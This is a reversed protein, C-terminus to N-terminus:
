PKADDLRKLDAAVALLAGVAGEIKQVLPSFCGAAAITRRAPSPPPRGPAEDVHISEFLAITEPMPRCGLDRALKSELERYQMIATARDSMRLQCGILKRHVHELLPEIRLIRRAFHIAEEWAAEVMAGDLRHEMAFVFDTRAAERAILSWDAYLDPLLDGTYLADIAHASAAAERGDARVIAVLDMFRHLDVEVDAAPDLRIGAASRAIAIGGALGSAAIARRLRWLETNLARRAHEPQREEPWLREILTDHGVERGREVLLLLLLERCRMSTFRLELRAEGAIAELGGFLRISLGTV